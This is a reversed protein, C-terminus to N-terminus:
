AHRIRARQRGDAKSEGTFYALRCQEADSGITGRQPGVQVLVDGRHTCRDGLALRGVAALGAGDLTM